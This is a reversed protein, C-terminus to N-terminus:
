SGPLGPVPEGSCSGNATRGTSFFQVAQDGCIVFDLSAHAGNNVTLLNGGIRQQMQQAWVLPTTTETRHGVLQLTSTGRKLNWPQAPFPWGACWHTYGAGGSGFLPSDAVRQQVQRWMTDVDADPGQDNCLVSRQMLFGGSVSDALGFDSYQPEEGTLTPTGGDRLAVVTAAVDAWHAQQYTLISTVSGATYVRPIDGAPTATIPHEKLRQVLATVSTTVARQDCGLHYTDDRAAAWRAFDEFNAQKAIASGRNMTELSFDPPMVSDLLMRDVHSDYRSRYVAGLATGWSMGYFSIKDEGLAVRIRDMDEAVVDTSYHSVLAPDYGACRANWRATQQYGQRYQDVPRAQRDPGPGDEPALDCEKGESFGVGRPDFGILDHDAGIAGVPLRGLQAPMGIGQNGPGGPNILIVGQRKAPATARIRSVAIGITPGVPHAYDLPVRVTSCESHNDDAPWQPYATRCPTWTLTSAPTGATAVPAGALMTAAIACLGLKAMASTM